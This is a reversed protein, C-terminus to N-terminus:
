LAVTAANSVARAAVGAARRVGETTLSAADGLGVLILLPSKLMGATPIKVVEGPKGQFGLTSLLPQFKRGYASGVGEGGAAVALGKDTKVVGAVVVDAKTKDAAGKRLSYTTVDTRSGRRTTENSGPM